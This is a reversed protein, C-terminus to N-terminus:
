PAVLVDWITGTPGSLTNERCTVDNSTPNVTCLQLKAQDTGIAIQAVSDSRVGYALGRPSFASTTSWGADTCAGIDKNSDVPCKKLQITRTAFIHQM